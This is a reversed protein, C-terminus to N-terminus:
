TSFTSSSVRSIAAPRSTRSWTYASSAWPTRSTRAARRGPDYWFDAYTLLGHAEEFQPESGYFDYHGPVLNAETPVSLAASVHGFVFGDGQGVLDFEGIFGSRAPVAAVSTGALSAVLALAALLAFWRRM